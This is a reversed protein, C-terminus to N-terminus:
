LIDTQCPVKVYMFPVGFLKKSFAKFIVVLYKRLNKNKKKLTCDKIDKFHSGRNAICHSVHDTWNKLVNDVTHLQIESIAKLINDARRSIIRIDDEDNKHVFIREVYSM